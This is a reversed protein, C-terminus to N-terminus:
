PSSSGMSSPGSSFMCSSIISAIASSETRRPYTSPLPIMDLLFTPMLWLCYPTVESPTTVNASIAIRSCPM